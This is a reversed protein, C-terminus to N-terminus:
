NSGKFNPMDFGGSTEPTRGSLFKEKSGMVEEIELVGKIVPLTHIVFKVKNKQFAALNEAHGLIGFGTIDTAGHAKYKHM